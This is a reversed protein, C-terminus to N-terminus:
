SSPGSDQRSDRSAERIRGLPDSLRRERAQKQLREDHEVHQQWRDTTWRGLAMGLLGTVAGAVIMSFGPELGSIGGDLASWMGLAGMLLLSGGVGAVWTAHMSHAGMVRRSPVGDQAEVDWRAAALSMQALRGLSYGGALLALYFLLPVLYGPGRADAATGFAEVAAPIALVLGVVSPVAAWVPSLPGVRAGTGAGKARGRARAPRVGDASDGPIRDSDDM